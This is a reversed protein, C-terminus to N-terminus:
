TSPLRPGESPEARAPPSQSSATPLRGVLFLAFGFALGILLAVILFVEDYSTVLAASVASPTRASSALEGYRWTQFASLLSLGLAAGLSQLFRVIGVSAGVERLPAESQVALTNAGLALGSGVGMPILPLVLGGVPLFGFRVVWLPTTATL